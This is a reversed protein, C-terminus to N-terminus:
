LLLNEDREFYFNSPIIIVLFLNFHIINQYQSYEKLCTFFLIYDQEIKDRIMNISNNGM